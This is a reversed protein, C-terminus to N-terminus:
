CSNGNLSPYIIKSAYFNFIAEMFEVAKVLFLIKRDSSNPLLAFAQINMVPVLTVNRPSIRLFPASEPSVELELEM